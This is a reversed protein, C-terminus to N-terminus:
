LLGGLSGQGQSSMEGQGRLEARESFQSGDPSGSGRGTIGVGCVELQFAEELTGKAPSAGRWGLSTDPTHRREPRPVSRVKHHRQQRPQDKRM